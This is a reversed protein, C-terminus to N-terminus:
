KPPVEKGYKKLIGQIAEELLDNQKKDQMAALIRLRKMLQADIMNNYPKRKKIKMDLKM